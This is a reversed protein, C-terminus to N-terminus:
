QVILYKAQYILTKFYFLIKPLYLQIQYIMYWLTVKSHNQKLDLLDLLVKLDPLDLQAKLDPLDLLVKLDLPDPLAELDLLDLPAKIEQIELEEKLVPLGLQAKLVPVDQVVVHDLLALLAQQDLQGLNM